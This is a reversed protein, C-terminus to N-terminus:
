VLGNGPSENCPWDASTPTVTVPSALPVGPSGAPAFTETRKPAFAAQCATVPREVHDNVPGSTFLPNSSIEALTTSSPGPRTEISSDNWTETFTQTSILSM